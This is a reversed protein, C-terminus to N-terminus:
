KKQKSLLASQAAALRSIPIRYPSTSVYTLGSRHFFDISLPDGGHEGCIGVELKPNTLNGEQVALQILRGVGDEDIVQFPNDDLIHKAAYDPLFKNEADERSFSFTGQTLDNTGFSFFETKKAIEGSVLCARVVEMMTGFKIKLSVGFRAEVESKIRGYIERIAEIEETIGVQPVMIQPRVDVGEKMLEGAAEGIARIQMEYIEPSTIGLRVGRHGLMPNTEFLGRAKELIGRKEKILVPSSGAAEMKQIELLIQEISPLFEHLPPDLLRITVPLGSMVQLILKFDGKQLAMIRDLAKIREDKNQSLIMEVVIPLRDPHNFMRETRCLGIGEAGLRRALTASEPTDANARIGLRRVQDAWGLLEDM